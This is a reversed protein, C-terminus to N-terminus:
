HRVPGKEAAARKERIREVLRERAGDLLPEGDKGTVEVRQIGWDKPYRHRLWIHAAKVDGALAAKFITGECASKAEAEAALLEIVFRGFEDLEAAGAEADEKNRTGRQVWGKLTRDSIGVLAAASVRYRGMRAHHIIKTAVDLNFKSPAPM